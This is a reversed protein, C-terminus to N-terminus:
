DDDFDFPFFEFRLIEHRTIARLVGAADRRRLQDLARALEEAARAPYGDTQALTRHLQSIEWGEGSGSGAPVALTIDLLWRSPKGTLAPTQHAEIGAIHDARVLGDTLTAIWINELGM